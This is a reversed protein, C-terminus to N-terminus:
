FLQVSINYRRVSVVVLHFANDKKIFSICLCFLGLATCTNWVVHFATLWSHCSLKGCYVFMVNSRLVDIEVASIRSLDQCAAAAWSLYLVVEKFLRM